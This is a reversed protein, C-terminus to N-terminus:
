KKKPSFVMVLQRGEMVPFQEVIAAAALDTQIRELQKRGIDQHVM